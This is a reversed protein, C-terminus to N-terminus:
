RGYVHFVGPMRRALDLYDTETVWDTELSDSRALKRQCAVCYHRKRATEGECGPCRFRGRVM